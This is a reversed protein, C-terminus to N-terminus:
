RNSVSSVQIVQDYGFSYNKDQDIVLITHKLKLQNLTNCLNTKFSTDLDSFPEDLLLIKKNTLLARAILLLKKKGSSINKGGEKLPQDLISEDQQTVFGLKKLMNYAASRKEEKRSYSIAEFITKGILPLEDSVLAVNKRLLHKSISKIEKGDISAQGEHYDYLGLLLKFLTSKGSGQVGEVLVIGNESIEFSLNKFIQIGNEFKFSLKDFKIKGSEIKLEQDKSKLEQEANYILLLKKFSIDGAQWIFNVKLIRRLVPMTNIMLMIFILIVSGDVPSYGDNNIKYAVFLVWGLMTYLLFPLLANIFAQWTYYKKGQVYLNVSGKSFKEQEINERNFVKITLLANLRSAVFSLNVSRINRRKKNIKKLNKNIFLISIFILPFSIIIILALQPHIIFFIAIAIILFLCDNIFAIIGKTLYNQISSLDGGYRLLYAGTDKREFVNLRSNIQKEFLQERVDKSFLEGSIGSFYKEFYNFIFKVLLLTAFFLFYTGIDSINGFIKDFIGGRASHTHLALQYFKGLFVPVLVTALISLFGFLLACFIIGRHLAIFSLIINKKTYM